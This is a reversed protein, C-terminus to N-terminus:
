KIENYNLNKLNYKKNKAIMDISIVDWTNNKYHESPSMNFSIIDDDVLLNYKILVIGMCGPCNRPTPIVLLNLLGYTPHLKTTKTKFFKFNSPLDKKLIYYIEIVYEYKEKISSRLDKANKENLIIFKKKFNIETIEKNKILNNIGIQFVAIPGGDNCINLPFSKISLGKPKGSEDYGSIIGNGSVHARGDLHHSIKPSNSGDISYREIITGKGINKQGNIFSDGIIRVKKVIYNFELSNFLNTIFFGGEKLFGLYFISYIKDQHTLYVKTNFNEPM